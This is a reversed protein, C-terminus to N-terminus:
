CSREFSNSLHTIFIQFHNWLEKLIWDNIPKTHISAFALLIVLLQQYLIDNIMMLIVNLSSLKRCQGCSKLWTIYFASLFQDPLKLCFNHLTDNHSLWLKSWIGIHSWGNFLDSNVKATATQWIIMAWPGNWLNQSLKQKGWHLYNSGKDHHDCEQFSVGKIRKCFNLYWYGIIDSDHLVSTIIFWVFLYNDNYCALDTVQTTLFVKATLKQAAPTTLQKRFKYYM